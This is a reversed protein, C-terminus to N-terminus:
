ERFRIQLCALARQTAWGRNYGWARGSVGLLGHLSGAQGWAGIRSGHAPREKKGRVVAGASLIGRNRAAVDVRGAAM